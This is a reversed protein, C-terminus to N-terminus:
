FPLDDEQKGNHNNFVEDEEDDDDLPNLKGKAPAVEKKEKKEDFFYFRCGKKFDMKMKVRDMVGVEEFRIKETKVITPVGMDVYYKDDEEADDEIDEKKRRKYLYRHIIIGVDAKEKWASSGKIDYLSPMKYNVGQQDIKRPHVIVIGHVDYVDCFNILYDLQQSIFQTESMYKPQEHEIKNWADIVFGFINETKKLYILYQLISEMTNVKNSDIKGGWTEFNKKDPSIISFHKEIFNMTKSRLADNMSNPLGEKYACGAMVEAIKAYERGVPRNEPTFMAWKPSLEPNHRVFETIYWRIWVSKGASPVGTVFTIQKPKLTFLRDVESIGIGYGPTFGDKAIIDLEERLDSPKIIGKVPFSSLNQYCEDVGEQGLAKLGKKEDGNWVENIDKYGVPYNIYKCREKGFRLALHNKLLRGPEDNDTSFIFLEVDAIVSKFYPDEAYAFKDKFDTSKVSPAGQPESLVNKYGATMWTLRDIEGETWLVTKPQEDEFQLSQLGWPLIKTGYDKNLQWWKPGDDGEKWRINLYKVNVLTLNIFVPFGIIPKQDGGISYEFVKEKICIRYDIGRKKWYDMVERSYLEPIQGPMHSKEQVQKFKDHLDLNGSWSCHPHNCHWWRNGPENNVTLCPVNKKKRTHSCQPCTTIYRVKGSEEKIGLEAFSSAM